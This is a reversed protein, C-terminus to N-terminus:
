QNVTSAKRPAHVAAACSPCLGVIPFHTFSARYGFRSEVLERVADLEATDV